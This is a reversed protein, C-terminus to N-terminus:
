SRENGDEKFMLDDEGRVVRLVEELVLPIIRRAIFRWLWSM